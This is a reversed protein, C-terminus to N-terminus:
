SIWGLKGFIRLFVRSRFQSGSFINSSFLRREVKAISHRFGRTEMKNRPFTIGFVAVRVSNKSSSYYTKLIHDIYTFFIKRLHRFSKRTWFYRNIDIIPKL